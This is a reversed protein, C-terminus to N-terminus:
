MELTSVEPYVKQALERGITVVALRVTLEHESAAPFRARLGALALTRIARSAGAVIQAIEVTSLSRWIEIQRAEAAVSTDRLPVTEHPRAGDM